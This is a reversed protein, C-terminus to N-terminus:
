PVTPGAAEGPHRLAILDPRADRVAWGLELVTEGGTRRGGPRWTWRGHRWRARTWPGTWYAVGPDSSLPLLDNVDDPGVPMLVLRPTLVPDTAAGAPRKAHM